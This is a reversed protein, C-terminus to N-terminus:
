ETGTARESPSERQGIKRVLDVLRDPMPRADADYHQRLARGIEVRVQQMRGAKARSLLVGNRRM